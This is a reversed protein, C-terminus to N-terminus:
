KIGQVPMVSAKVNTKDDEEFDSDSLSEYCSSSVGGYNSEAKVSVSRLIEEATQESPTLQPTLSTRVNEENSPLVSTIEAKVKEMNSWWEQAISAASPCPVAKGELAETQTTQPSLTELVNTTSLSPSLTFRASTMTPKASIDISATKSHSSTYFQTSPQSPSFVSRPVTSLTKQIPVRM